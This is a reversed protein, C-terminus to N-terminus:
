KIGKKIRYQAVYDNLKPLNQDKLIGEVLAMCKTCCHEPLLAYQKVFDNLNYIEFTSTNNRLRNYKTGCRSAEFSKKHKLHKM